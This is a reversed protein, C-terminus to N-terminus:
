GMKFEEVKGKQLIKSQYYWKNSQDNTENEKKQTYHCKDEGLWIKLVKTSFQPWIMKGLKDIKNEHYTGVM